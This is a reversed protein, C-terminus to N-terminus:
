RGWTVSTKNIADLPKKVPSKGIEVIKSIFGDKIKGKLKAKFSKDGALMKKLESLDMTQGQNYITVRGNSGPTITMKKTKGDPGTYDFDLPKGTKKVYAIINDIMTKPDLLHTNQKMAGRLGQNKVADEFSIEKGGFLLKPEEGEKEGPKILFEKIGEGDQVDMGLPFNREKVVSIYQLLHKTSNEIAEKEVDENGEKMAEDLSSM